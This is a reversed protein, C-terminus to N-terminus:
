LCFIEYCISNAIFSCLYRRCHNLGDLSSLETKTSVLYPTCHNTGCVGYLNTKTYGHAISRVLCVGAYCLGVASTHVSYKM